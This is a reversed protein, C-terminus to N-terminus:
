PKEDVDGAGNHHLPDSTALSQRLLKMSEVGKPGTHRPKVVAVFGATLTDTVLLGPEDAIRTNVELLSGAFCCCVKYPYQAAVIRFRPIFPQDRDDARNTDMAAAPGIAVLATDPATWIAQKKRKGKLGETDARRDKTGGKKVDFTVKPAAGSARAEVLAAHSPDLCIVALGNSHLMVRLHNGPIGRANEVLYQDYYRDVFFDFGRPWRLLERDNSGDGAPVAVAAFTPIDVAPSPATAAGENSPAASGDRDGAAANDERRHSKTAPESSAM